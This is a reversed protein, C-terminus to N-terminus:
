DLQHNLPSSTSGSTWMTLRLYGARAVQLQNLPAERHCVNHKFAALFQSAQM